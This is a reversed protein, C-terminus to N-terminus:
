KKFFLCIKLITLSMNRRSIKIILKIHNKKKKDKILSCNKPYNMGKKMMKM